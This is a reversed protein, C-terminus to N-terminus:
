GKVLKFGISTGMGLSYGLKIILMAMPEIYRASSLDGADVPEFGIDSALQMVTRRAKPDNGAIFVTLGEKGLKGTSMSHAFVTNFAKVVKAKPLCKQLEEAGSTTLGVALKGGKGIANTADILVKGDAAPGMEGAVERLTGFPVALIVVDAWKAADKVPENPDRHGFKVDHGAKSLGKGLASGVNGKGIIGIKM